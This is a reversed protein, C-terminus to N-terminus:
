SDALVLREIGNQEKVSIDEPVRKLLHVSQARGSGDAHPARRGDLVRLSKQFRDAIDAAIGRVENATRSPNALFYGSNWNLQIHAHSKGACLMQRCGRVPKRTRYRICSALTWRATFYARRCSPM